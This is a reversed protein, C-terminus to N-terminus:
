PVRKKEEIPLYTLTDAIQGFDLNGSDNLFTLLNQSNQSLGLFDLMETTLIQNGANNGTKLICTSSFTDELDFSGGIEEAFLKAAVGLCCYEMSAEGTHAVYHRKALYHKGQGFKGDRLSNAWKSRRLSIERIKEEDTITVYEPLSM